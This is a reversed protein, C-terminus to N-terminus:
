SIDVLGWGDAADRGENKAYRAAADDPPTLTAGTADRAQVLDVPIGNDRQADRPFLAVGDVAKQQVFHEGDAAYWISTIDPSGVTLLEDGPLQVTFLWVRQMDTLVAAPNEGPGAHRFYLTGSAVAHPVIGREDSMFVGIRAPEDTGPATSYAQVVTLWDGDDVQGSWLTTVRVYQRPAAFRTVFYSSAYRSLQAPPRRGRRNWDLYNAPLVSGVAPPASVKVGSSPPPQVRPITNGLPQQISRTLRANIPYGGDNDLTHTLVPVGFGVMILATTAAVLRGTTRQRRLKRAHTDIRLRLDSPLTVLQAHERLAARLEDEFGSM